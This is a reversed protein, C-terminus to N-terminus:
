TKKSKCSNKYNAFAEELREQYEHRHERLLTIYSAMASAVADPNAPDVRPIQPAPNQKPLEFVTSCDVSEGGETVKTSINMAPTGQRNLVASVYLIQADVYANYALLDQYYDETIKNGTVAPPPLTGIRDTTLVSCGTLYLLCIFLYIIRM